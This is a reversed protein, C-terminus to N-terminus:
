KRVDFFEFCDKLYANLKEDEVLAACQGETTNTDSPIPRYKQLYYEKVGMTKLSDAIKYIDDVSLFRPDCTTRCEFHKGSECLINM